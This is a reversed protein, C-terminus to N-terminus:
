VSSIGIVERYIRSRREEPDISYIARLLIRVQWLQKLSRVIGHLRGVNQIPEAPGIVIDLLEPHTDGSGVCGGEGLHPCRDDGVALQYHGGVWCGFAPADPYEYKGGVGDYVDYDDRDYQQHNQSPHQYAEVPLVLAGLLLEQSSHIIKIILSILWRLAARSTRDRLKIRSCYALLLKQRRHRCVISIKENMGTGFVPVTDLLHLRKPLRSNKTSNRAYM